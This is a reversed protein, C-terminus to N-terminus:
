LLDALSDIRMHGRTPGLSELPEPPPPATKPEPKRRRRRPTKIREARGDPETPRTLIDRVGRLVGIRWEYGKIEEDIDTLLNDM